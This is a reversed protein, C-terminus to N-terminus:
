QRAFLRQARRLIEKASDGNDSRVTVAFGKDTPTVKATVDKPVLPCSSMEPMQNGLAANRALHCDLVRQLWQATMGPVPRFSIVAGGASPEVGTIDGAHEFPSMDRNRESLGVCARAEADRLAQSAARHEAAMKRLQAAEERFIATPNSESTWCVDEPDPGRSPNQCSETTTTQSPDYARADAAGARAEQAAMADHQAASMDHPRAGKTTACGSAFLLGLISSALVLRISRM